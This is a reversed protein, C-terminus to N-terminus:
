DKNTLFSMFNTPNIVQFDTDPYGNQFQSPCKVINKSNWKFEFASMKGNEEEIFDIEQQTKTRWFYTKAWRRQYHNHKQREAILFNEWLSGIDTRLEPLNFNGILANRVGNDYFYIKRSSSIENRLNRSLPQLRFIVFAKELLDLYNDVTNKDIQLLQALENLSVENGLQLAIAQLLRKLIAPKRINGYSLVDKYLYSDVLINLREVEDGIHTIIEPYMGFILRQNLQMRATINDTEDVFEQWSIPYLKYEWKRGTLPESIENALELASSGTVILQKEPLQDTIIKLTIGINKVRQAEDIVVINANGLLGRLREINQNELSQRSLENDANLWLIKDTRNELLQRILTTKGTQRAGLVIIAKGSFMRERLTSLLARKIMSKLTNM